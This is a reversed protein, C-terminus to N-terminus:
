AHHPARDFPPNLWAFQAFGPTAQLSKLADCALVHAAHEACADARGDHLENTYVQSTVIGFRGAWAGIMVGKGACPDLIRGAFGDPAAVYSLLADEIAAPTPVFGLEAQASLRAMHSRGKLLLPDGM